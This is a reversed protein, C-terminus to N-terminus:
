IQELSCQTLRLKVPGFFEAEDQDHTIVLLLRNEAQELVYQMAAYKTTPDLGKFPEDLLVGDAPALMARLIATRRKQGGSLQACRKNWDEPGLGLAKFGNEIRQRDLGRPCVLAVNELASLGPCLRDEQFVATLHGQVNVKGSDPRELGLLLRSLTTKGSGSAGVLVMRGELRANVHQLVPQGAYSKSVDELTITM